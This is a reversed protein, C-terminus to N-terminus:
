TCCNNLEFQFLQYPTKYNLRKRPRNNLRAQVVALEEPTPAKTKKGKPYYQRLLGNLNEVCGKQYPKCADCFYVLTEPLEREIERWLEFEKGRDVTLTRRAKAPLKVFERVVAEKMTKAKKDELLVTIAKGTKREVFVGTMKKEKRCFALSDLEWHGFEKRKQVKKPREAIKRCGKFTDGRKNGKRWGKKYTLHRFHKSLHCLTKNHFARYITSISVEKVLVNTLQEPSLDGELGAVVREYVENGRVLKRKRGCRRKRGKAKMQAKAPNYRKESKNRKLERSITSKNRELRKAIITISEGCAFYDAICKREYTNLQTYNM